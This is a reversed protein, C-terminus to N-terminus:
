QSLTLRPWPRHSRPLSFRKEPLYGVAKALDLPFSVQPCVSRYSGPIRSAGPLTEVGDDTRAGEGSQRFLRRQGPARAKRM